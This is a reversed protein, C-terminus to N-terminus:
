GKQQRAVYDRLVADMRGQWGEGTSKFWAVVEPSYRVTVSVKTPHRQPGRQGRLRTQLAVRVAPIGGEQVLVADQWYAEVQAPDNPDYACEADDVREPADAGLKNWDDPSTPFGDPLPKSKM